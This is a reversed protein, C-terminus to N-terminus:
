LETKKMTQTKGMAKNLDTRMPQCGSNLGLVWGVGGGRAGVCVCVCLRVFACVCVCVCLCARVCVCVCACVCLCVCVYVYVCVCVLENAEAVSSEVRLIM